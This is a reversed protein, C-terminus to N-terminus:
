TEWDMREVLLTIISSGRFAGRLFSMCSSKDLVFIRNIATGSLHAILSVLLECLYNGFLM